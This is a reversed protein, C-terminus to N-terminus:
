IFGGSSCDATCLCSVRCTSGDPCAEPSSCPDVFCLIHKCKTPLTEVYNGSGILVVITLFCVLASKM